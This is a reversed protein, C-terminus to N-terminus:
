VTRTEPSALVYLVGEDTLLAVVAAHVAQSLAVGGGNALLLGDFVGRPNVDRLVSQVRLGFLDPNFALEIV